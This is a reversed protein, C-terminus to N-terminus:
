FSHGCGSIAPPRPVELEKIECGESLSVAYGSARVLLGREAAEVVCPEFTSHQKAIPQGGRHLQFVIKTQM